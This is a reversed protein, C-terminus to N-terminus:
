RFACTVGAWLDTVTAQAGDGSLLGGLDGAQFEHGLSSEEVTADYADDLDARTSGVGLGTLTTLKGDSRDNVSWGVLRDNQFLLSLGDSWQTNKTPGAGCDANVGSSTPAGRSALATMVQGEPTDFPIPRTRGSRPDVLRLGESDITLVPAVAREATMVPAKPSSVAPAEAITARAVPATETEAGCATLVLAAGLSSWSKLKM